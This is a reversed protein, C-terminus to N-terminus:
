RPAEYAGLRWAYLLGTVAMVALGAAAAWAATHVAGTAATVGFGGLILLALLGAAISGTRAPGLRAGLEDLRRM